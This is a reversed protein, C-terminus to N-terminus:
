QHQWNLKKSFVLTQAVFGIDLLCSINQIENENVFIFNFNCKYMTAKISLKFFAFKFHPKKIEFYWLSVKVAINQPITPM